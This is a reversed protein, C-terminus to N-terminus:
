ISLYYNVTSLSIVILSFCIIRRGTRRTGRRRYFAAAHHVPHLSEAHMLLLVFFFYCIRATRNQNGCSHAILGAATTISAAVDHLFMLPCSRSFFEPPQHQASHRGRLSKARQALYLTRCCNVFSLHFLIHHLLLCIVCIFQIAFM